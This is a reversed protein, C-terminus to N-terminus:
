VANRSHLALIFVAAASELVGRILTRKKTLDFRAELRQVASRLRQRYKETGALVCTRLSQKPSAPGRSTQLNAQADERSRFGCTIISPGAILDRLSEEYSYALVFRESPSETWHVEIVAYQAISSKALERM